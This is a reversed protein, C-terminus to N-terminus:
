CIGMAKKSYDLTPNKDSHGFGIHDIFYLTFHQSLYPVIKKFNDTSGMFGHAIVFPPGEGEKVYHMKAGNINVLDGLPQQMYSVKSLVLATYINTLGLSVAVGVVIVTLIFLCTKAIRRPNM